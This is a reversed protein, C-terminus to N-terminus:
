LSRETTIEIIIDPKKDASKVKQEWDAPTTFFYRTEKFMANIYPYLAQSFSDCFIWATRDTVAQANYIDGGPPYPGSQDNQMATHVGNSEVREVTIPRDWLLNYNDGPRPVYSKQLGGIVVLDGSHLPGQQFSHPPLPPWRMQAIFGSFAVSGGFINWHTNSRFYLLGVNKAALLIPTPDYVTVNRKRLESCLPTIYRVAAPKIIKPLHEPYITSKSPGIFLVYEIGLKRCANNKVSYIQAKEELKEQTLVMRGTLKDTVNAYSNGLFLWNDKGRYCKDADLNDQFLRTIVVIALNIFFPRGPFQDITFSDIGKFYEKVSNSTIHKPVGPFQAQRRNEDTVVTAGHPYLALALPAVCIAFALLCSLIFKGM